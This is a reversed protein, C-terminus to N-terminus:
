LKKQFNKKFIKFDMGVRFYRNSKIQTVGSRRSPGRIPPLQGNSFPRRRPDFLSSPGTRSIIIFNIIVTLFTVFTGFRVIPEVFLWILSRLALGVWSHFRGTLWGIPWSYGVLRSVSKSLLQSPPDTLCRQSCRLPRLSFSEFFLRLFRILVFKSLPFLRISHRDTWWRFQRVRNFLLNRIAVWDSKCIQSVLWRVWNIQFYKLNNWIVKLYRDWYRPFRGASESIWHNVSSSCLSLFFLLRLSAFAEVRVDGLERHGQNESKKREVRRHRLDVAQKRTSQEEGQRNTHRNDTRGDSGGRM